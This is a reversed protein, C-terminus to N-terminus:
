TRDLEYILHAMEGYESGLWRTVILSLAEVEEDSRANPLFIETVLVIKNISSKISSTICPAFRLFSVTSDFLHKRSQLFCGGDATENMFSSKIAALNNLVVLDFEYVIVTAFFNNGDRFSITKTLAFLGMFDHQNIEVEYKTPVRFPRATATRPKLHVVNM